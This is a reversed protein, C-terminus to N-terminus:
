DEERRTVPRYLTIMEIDSGTALKDLAIAQTYVIGNFTGTCIWAPIGRVEGDTSQSAARRRSAEQLAAKQSQTLMTEGTLTIDSM